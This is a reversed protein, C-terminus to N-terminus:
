LQLLWWASNWFAARCTAVVAHRNWFAVTSAVVAAVAMVALAVM